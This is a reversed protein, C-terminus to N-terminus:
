DVKKVNSAHISAEKEVIGGQKNGRPKTHRKVLNVGEVVVTFHRKGNPPAAAPRPEHLMPEPPGMTEM